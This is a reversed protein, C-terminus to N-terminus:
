RLHDVEEGQPGRGSHRRLPSRDCRDASAFLEQSPQRAQSAAAGSAGRSEASPAIGKRARAFKRQAKGIGTAAEAGFRPNAITEGTSLTAFREVGWDIGALNGAKQRVTHVDAVEIQLAVRSIRGEKTLTCSRISAHDALRRHLDLKLRGPMGKFVLAGYTL